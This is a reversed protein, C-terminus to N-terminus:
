LGWPQVADPAYCRAQLVRSHKVVPHDRDIRAIMQVRHKIVEADPFTYPTLGRLNQCISDLPVAFYGQEPGVQDWDAEFRGTGTLLDIADNHNQVAQRVWERMSPHAAATEHDVDARIFQLPAAQDSLRYM